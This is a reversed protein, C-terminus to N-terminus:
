RGGATKERVLARLEEVIEPNALTTVDGADHGCSVATLVRSGSDAIRHACASASFGSFVQSHIVGLRACALMSVPLELTMPLHLTVRDGRKLGCFERLM